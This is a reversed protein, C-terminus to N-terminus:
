FICFYISVYIIIFIALLVGVITPILYYFRINNDVVYKYDVLFLYISVCLLFLGIILMFIPIAYM